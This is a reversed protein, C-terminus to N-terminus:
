VEAAGKTTLSNESSIRRRIWNGHLVQDLERQAGALLLLSLQCTHRGKSRHAVISTSYLHVLTFFMGVGVECGSAISVGLASTGTLVFDLVLYRSNVVIMEFRLTM